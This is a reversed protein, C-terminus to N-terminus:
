ATVGLRRRPRRSAIRKAYLTNRRSRRLGELRKTERLRWLFHNLDLLEMEAKRLEKQHEDLKEWGKCVCERFCESPYRTAELALRSTTHCNMARAMESLFFYDGEHFARSIIAARLLHSYCSFLCLKQALKSELELLDDYLLQLGKERGITQGWTISTSIHRYGIFLLEKSYHWRGRDLEDRLPYYASPSFTNFRTIIDVVPGLRKSVGQGLIPLTPRNM